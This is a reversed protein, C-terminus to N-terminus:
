KAACDRTFFDKKFGENEGYLLYINFKKFDFSGAEFTKLIM